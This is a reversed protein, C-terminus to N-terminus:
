RPKYIADFAGGDAFNQAQAPTWGGFAASGAARAAMPAALAAAGGAALMRRRSIVDHM